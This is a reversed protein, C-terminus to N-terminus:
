LRCLGLRKDKRNLAIMKRIQITAEAKSLGKEAIGHEKLFRLQKKTATSDHSQHLWKGHLDSFMVKMYTRAFDECIGTCYGLPLPELSVPQVDGGKMYLRAIYGDNCPSVIIENGSDDALSYEDDGLAVWTFTTQGLIDFVEDQLENVFSARVVAAEREGKTKEKQEIVEPLTKSLTMISNIDHHNDTFDLVLCDKKLPDVRLGRGICQTYLSRSKTPRAMAVCNVSPEDFGETLVGCSSVVQTNGNKFNKLVCVRDDKPMDGWIAQCSIGACSFSYAIDLCHQVSACFVIGKREKAHFVYKQAIFDNRAPTNVVSSLQSSVFDGNYLGIGDLSVDTLVRRGTVPVLFGAKIMTSISRSFVVKEFIGGLGKKDAREPTATVGVLLKSCDDMFGLEKIIKEYSGAVAHHAEDIVLLKFGKEKFQEVRRVCSQITGIVIDHDLENREAKCIGIDVGKWSAKVIKEAQMILEERHALILTKVKLERALAAFIVTKGVGTPLVILQCSVGEKFSALSRSVAEKQYARLILTM